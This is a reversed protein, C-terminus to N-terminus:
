YIGGLDGLWIGETRKDGLERAVELAQEFFPISKRAQGLKLYAVGISDIVSETRKDGVERAVILAQEYLDIARHLQGLNTYANGLKALASGEGSRDGVERAIELAQEFFPIAKLIEGLVYYATGLGRLADAEGRRDGVESAIDLAQECFTIAKKVEGLNVYTDGLRALSGSEASRDGLFRNVLLAAEHWLILERPHLRLSICYTRKAFESCIGAIEKSALYNEAAWQQAIRIHEWEMDFLRLGMLIRDGGEKCLQDAAQYIQLYYSAHHIRAQYKEGEEMQALAYDALLDHLLYRSSTEDYDLLGYRRFLRLSRIAENEGLEFVARAGGADFSAPFVGLRRWRQRDEAALHQYSLEFTALLDPETTLEAGTRSEKLAALRGKRDHFQLLYKEFSVDDNVQLYSGAIRLALPLYACAQALENTHEGIRPCVELLLEVAETETLVGVKHATLGAVPFTWRSTVLMACSDPPTLPAIQEASKANDFFLLAKRGHLVSQYMARLNTEDLTRLDAKPEFSRIVYGAIDVASLPETTGKLDLFIQADPYKEKLRHAVVLGLSTKGIGGMGTLSSIVAGQHADFDKLLEEIITERGTFDAPPQPLQHLSRLKIHEPALNIVNGDGVIISGSVNGGVQISVQKSESSSNKTM